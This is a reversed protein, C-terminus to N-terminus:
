IWRIDNGPEAVQASLEAVIVGRRSGRTCLFPMQQAKVEGRKRLSTPILADKVSMGPSPVQGCARVRLDSNPSLGRVGVREECTPLSFFHGTLHSQGKHFPNPPKHCLTAGERSGLSAVVLSPLFGSLDLRHCCWRRHVGFAKVMLRVM